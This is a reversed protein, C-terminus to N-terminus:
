TNLTFLSQWLDPHFVLSYCADEKPVIQGAHQVAICNTEFGHTAEGKLAELKTHDGGAQVPLMVMKMKPDAYDGDKKQATWM